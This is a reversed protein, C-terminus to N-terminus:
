GAKATKTQHLENIEEIQISNWVDRVIEHEERCDWLSLDAILRDLRRVYDNSSDQSAVFLACAPGREPQSVWVDVSPWKSGANHFGRLKLYKSVVHLPISETVGGGNRQAAADGARGPM